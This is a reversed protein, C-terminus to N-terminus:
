ERSGELTVDGETCVRGRKLLFRFKKKYTNVLEQDLQSIKKGVDDSFVM